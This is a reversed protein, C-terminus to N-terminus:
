CTQLLNQKWYNPSYKWNIKKTSKIFKMIIGLLITYYKKYTEQGTEPLRKELNESGTKFKQLM